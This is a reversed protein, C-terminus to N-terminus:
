NGTQTPSDLNFPRSSALAPDSEAAIELADTYGDGDSDPSAARGSDSGHLVPAGFALVCILWALERVCRVM